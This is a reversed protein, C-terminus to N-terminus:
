KRHVAEILNNNPIWIPANGHKARIRAEEQRTAIKRMVLIVSGLSAKIDNDGVGALMTLAIEDAFVMEGATWTEVDALLGNHRIAVSVMWLARGQFFASCELGVNFTLGVSAVVGARQRWSFFRQDNCWDAEYCPHAFAVRQHPRM